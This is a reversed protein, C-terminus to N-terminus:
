NFLGAAQFSEWAAPAIVDAFDPTIHVIDKKTAVNTGAASNHVFAPCRAAVCSWPVSDVYVANEMSALDTMRTAYDQWPATIRSVCDAPTSLATYCSQIDVDVVPSALFVVHKTSSKFADVYRQVGSTWQEPTLVKGTTADIQNAYVQTYIVMDPHVQNITDVAAQKRAPCADAVWQVPNDIRYDIFNCGAMGIFQIRWQTAHEAVFHRLLDMYAQATSDGVVLAVKAAAPDGYSCLDAAPLTPGVCDPLGEPTGKGSVVDQMSPTMEPWATARLAAALQQQLATEAPGSTTSIQATVDIPATPAPRLAWLALTCACLAAVAVIQRNTPGRRPPKPPRRSRRGDPLPASAEGPSPTKPVPRSRLRFTEEIAYFGFLTLAAMASIMIPYYVLADAAVLAGVILITPWHWLYLSFSVRGVYRALPNNTLVHWPTSFDSVGHGAFLFLATAAVPWAATPGPFTSADTIIAASAVIVLLAALSLPNALRAPVRLGHRTALAVVAGLGLEWARGVTGFYAPAPSTATEYMCWAFSAMVGISAAAVVIGGARGPAWRRAWLTLALLLLPWVFYFQEEVALSWYHLVLSPPTYTQFYDTGARAFNINSAFLLSWVIDHVTQDVRAQSFVLKAAIWTALLVTLAAPLIRRVRRAYFTRISLRGTRDIEEAILGTILYGSIVFFVDVGIFGGEPWLKMHSLVVLTVAFARLGEIDPRFSSRTRASTPPANRLHAGVADSTSDAITTAM